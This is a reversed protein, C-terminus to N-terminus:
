AAAFSVTVSLSAAARRPGITRILLVAPRKGTNRYAYTTGAAIRVFSGPGVPGTAGNVMFELQGAAVVIVTEHTDHRRAPSQAYPPLVQRQARYRSDGDPDNAIFLVENTALYFATAPM